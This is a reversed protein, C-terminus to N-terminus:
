SAGYLNGGEGPPPPPPPFFFGPGGPFFFFFPNKPPPPPPNSRIIDHTKENTHTIRLCFEPASIDAKSVLVFSACARCDGPQSELKEWDFPGVM